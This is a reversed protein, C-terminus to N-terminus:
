RDGASDSTTPERRGADLANWNAVANLVLAFTGQTEWRWMPRIGFMVVHGRGLPADVVAARGTMESGNELVGSVLLSDERQHFRLIVRPALRAIDATLEPNRQAANGPGGRGGGAGQVQLLPAQNFYVSFTREDYGYLIPSERTVEQARFVSGRAFLRPASAVSVSPTLGFEIPVRTSNGETVLLGGREVFRRLAALGELGMAGRMDDTSDIRGLNPTAATRKWPLPPGVMPRGNVITQPNGNVHPFLVVDYDDLVGPKALAQDSMYTYKVGMQDLAFRWWGENQTEIWSHIYAIRPASVPHSKVTPATAVATAGLGLQTVAARADGGQVIFTGADFRKGDLTFASEAAAIRAGAVRWPLMASRWDGLHPVILVPGNGAVTGTVTADASLLQMPKALVTSDVIKLTTVHRLEDMTWGTDDYPSPDDAKFHQLALLTRVTQTYPQDMRVIWDGAHVTVETGRPTPTGAQRAGITTDATASDGAQGVAAVPAGRGGRRGGAAVTERTEVQRLNQALLASGERGRIKPEARTTFDRSAVHVEAGHRRFLNVLDAAEAGRRQGRPIVYAYPAERRGREIMREGKLVFNELFTARNDAVYELGLLVGSQQYNINSRMCWKVGSVAVNPRDWRREQSGPPFNTTQCDAGSSTYTEYFRGISNHLQPISLMYNPAWGDYFGHTWVGPLGRKTLENIENYALTHWENIEIPDFEDNYPGTGTSIYLFPVSEHLDHMVTPHWYHFGANVNQTLKQSMTIGDRNNDHATYKGWYPLGLNVKLERGLTNADVARDRGDVETAPTILTIVNSRIDQIFPSAEVALRYLLEMLMEPSGIEPSHISGTLWYIPKAERVLRDREAKSLGRPDALRAAMRRYEDLRAITADDAVAAVIMERGEDSMGLSFVKVRPSAKEVARFYRNFDAVHALRGISGPVYGLVALPTPVTKSAPLHDVLETTFKWRPDTPTLERIKATYEKDLAQQAAVPVPLAAAGSFVAAGLLLRRLTPM